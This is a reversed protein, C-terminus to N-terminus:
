ALGLRYHRAWLCAGGATFAVSGVAWLWLVAELQAGAVWGTLWYFATGLLFFLAGLGAGAEVGLALPADSPPHPPPLPPAAWLRIVKWAQSAAILASGVLFGLSGLTPSAASVSPAFGLSGLVYFFSGTASLSINARLLASETFTFWEMVDVMLFGLSGVTYLMSSLVALTNAQASSDDAFPWLLFTGFCFTIGGTLFCGCHAFRWWGFWPQAEISSDSDSLLAEM